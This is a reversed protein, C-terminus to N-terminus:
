PNVSEPTNTDANGYDGTSCLDKFIGYKLQSTGYGSSREHDDFNNKKSCILVPCSELVM